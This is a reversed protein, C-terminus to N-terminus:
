MLDSLGVIIFNTESICFVDGPCAHISYGYTGHSQDPIGVTVSSTVGNQQYPVPQDYQRSGKDYRVEEKVLGNLQIIKGNSLDMPNEFNKQAMHGNISQHSDVIENTLVQRNSPYPESDDLM